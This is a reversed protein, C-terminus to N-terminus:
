EGGISIMAKDHELRYIADTQNEIALQYDQESLFILALKGDSNPRWAILPNTNAAIIDALREQKTKYIGSM